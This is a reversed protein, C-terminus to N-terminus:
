SPLNTGYTENYYQEPSIIKGVVVAVMSHEFAKEIQEKEMQKAKNYIKLNNEDNASGIQHMLMYLYDVATQKTEM